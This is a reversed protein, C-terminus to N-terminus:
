YNNETTAGRIKKWDEEERVRCNVAWAAKCMDMTHGHLVGWRILANLDKALCKGGFGHLGDFGPVDMHSNGIRGCSLMGEKVKDFSAGTHICIENVENMFSVKSAFFCNMLHKILEAEEFSCKIIKAAPFRKEYMDVVKKFGSSTEYKYGGLVIRSAQIFDQLANRETLFEPNAILTHRVTMHQLVACTGPLVTSKIIITKSTKAHEKIEKLVDIISDLNQSGDKEMPTPVCVFIIDSHHIVEELPSFGKIYKDYSKIDYYPAMGFYVAKGVFGAGIISLTNKM